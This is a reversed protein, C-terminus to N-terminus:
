ASQLYGKIGAESGLVLYIPSKRGAHDPLSIDTRGIKHRRLCLNTTPCVFDEPFPDDQDM